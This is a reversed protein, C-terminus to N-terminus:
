AGKSESTVAGRYTEGPRVVQQAPVQENGLIYRTIRAPDAGLSAGYEAYLQSVTKGQANVYPVRVSEENVMLTVPATQDQPQVNSLFDM